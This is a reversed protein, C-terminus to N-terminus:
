LGFGVWLCIDTDRDLIWYRAVIEVQMAGFRMCVIMMAGKLFQQFRRVPKEAKTTPGKASLTIRQFYTVYTVRRKSIRQHSETKGLVFAFDKSQGGQARKGRLSM